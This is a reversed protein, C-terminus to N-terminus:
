DWLNSSENWIYRLWGLNGNLSYNIIWTSIHTPIYILTLFISIGNLEVNPILWIMLVKFNLPTFIISFNFYVLLQSIECSLTKLHAQSTGWGRVWSPWLKNWSLTSVISRTTGCWISPQVEDDDVNAGIKDHIIKLFQPWVHEYCSM